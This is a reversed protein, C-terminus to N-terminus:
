SFFKTASMRLEELSMGPKYIGIGVGVGDSTKLFEDRNELSVGGVALVPLPIVSKLVAINGPTGCPFCKLIDAGAKVAIFAETPTAFGPISVMGLERTRKIVAADTNPSIIYKGGAQFVADVDEPELVTGAGIHINSDKFHEAALKICDLANPTNLPIEMFRAGAEAITECVEIVEEKKVGRLIVVIKHELLQQILEERM